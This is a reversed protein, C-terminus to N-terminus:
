KCLRIENTGCHVDGGEIAYALDNVFQVKIGREGLAKKLYQDFPGFYSQAVIAAPKGAIPNLELLNVQNPFVSKGEEFLTPVEVIRPQHCGTAQTVKEALSQANSKLIKEIKERLHNDTTIKKGAGGMYTKLDVGDVCKYNAIKTYDSESLERSKLESFNNKSCLLEWDKTKKLVVENMIKLAKELSPRLIVFDCPVPDKTKLISILEDAHGIYLFSTDVNIIELGASRFMDTNREQVNTLLPYKLKASIKADRKDNFGPTSIVGRYLVGGPAAGLNGGSDIGLGQLSDKEGVLSTHVLYPIGCQRSLECPTNDSIKLDSEDGYNLHFLAPLNDKTFVRFVDRTWKAYSASGAIPIINIWPKDIVAKLRKESALKTVDDISVLINAIGKSNARHFAELTDIAFLISEPTYHVFVAGTPFRSDLAGFGSKFQPCAPIDSSKESPFCRGVTAMKFNDTILKKAAIIKTSLEATPHSCDFVKVPNEAANVRLFVFVLIVINALQFQSTM